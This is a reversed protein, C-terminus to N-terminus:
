LFDELNPLNADKHSVLAVPLDRLDPVSKWNVGGEEGPHYPKDCVNVITSEEHAFIAHAFGEPVIVGTNHMGILTTRFLKGKTDSDPRLDIAIDEIKGSLCIVFKKQAFDGRQFHLGRLVGKKSHSFYIESANGFQLDAASNLWPKIFVGREDPARFFKVLQLGQFNTDHFEM